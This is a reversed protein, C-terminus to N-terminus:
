IDTMWFDHESQALYYKAQKFVPSGNHNIIGGIYDSHLHTIVIDTIDEPNTGLLKLNQKMRGAGEGLQSGSGTDILILFHFSGPNSIALATENAFSAFALALSLSTASAYKLMNRRNM